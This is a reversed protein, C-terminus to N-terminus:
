PALHLQTGKSPRNFIRYVMPEFYDLPATDYHSQISTQDYREVWDATYEFYPHGRYQEREDGNSNPHTQAHYNLFAAHHRLMWYHKESIYNALLTASFEGHNDPCVVFGLDHFLAVVIEEESGGDRMVMTASQLCHRYNNIRFGYSPADKQVELLSLAQKAQEEQQYLKRYKSLNEWDNRSLDDMKSQSEPLHKLDAPLLTSTQNLMKDNPLDDSVLKGTGIHLPLNAPISM